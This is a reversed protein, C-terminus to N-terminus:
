PAIRIVGIESPWYLFHNGPLWRLADLRGMARVSRQTLDRSAYRDVAELRSEHTIRETAELSTM